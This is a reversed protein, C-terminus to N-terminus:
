TTIPREVRFCEFGYERGGYRTHRKFETGKFTILVHSRPTVFVRRIPQRSVDPLIDGARLEDARLYLPTHTTTM